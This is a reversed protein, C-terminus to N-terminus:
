QKTDTQELCFASGFDSFFGVVKGGKEKSIKHKSESTFIELM